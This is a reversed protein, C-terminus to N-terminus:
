ASSTPTRCRRRGSNIHFSVHPHMALLRDGTIARLGIDILRRHPLHHDPRRKQRRAGAARLRLRDKVAGFGAKALKVGKGALEKFDATILGPELIVSGAIVKMGDLRYGAFCRQAAVALAKVGPPDSPRGPM